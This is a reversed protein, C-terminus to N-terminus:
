LQVQGTRVVKDTRARSIGNVGEIMAPERREEPSHLCFPAISYVVDMDDVLSRM